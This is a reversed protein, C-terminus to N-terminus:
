LSEPRHAAWPRAQEFVRAARLVLDDERLRGVIQLGVPLGAKTFGCPVSAAPQGTLNFPFTFATWETWNEGDALKPAPQNHPFPLAALQPTLVLDYQTMFQRWAATYAVREALRKQYDRRNLDQGLSAARALSRDILGAKDTPLTSVLYDMGAYYIARFMPTPDFIPPNVELVTAGLGEFARAADGCLRAVEPDVTKVHGLTPSWAIRLGAVGRELGRLPAAQDWAAYNADRPDDGAMAALFMAADEVSRTMPGVHALTGSPSAPYAAVRGYTPKFGFVGCFSAPIRISGGADTGFALPGLGAALAAGAGGSSGGSTLDLDWPNRTVGTLPSDCTAKHGFECTTTKGLFVAGAARVHAVSPADETWPQHPDVTRSGRLTPWGKTLLLDKISLPVGDLPGLAAGTQFREESARAQALTVEQDLYCFANVRSELAEIRGVLYEAVEVPSLAHTRYAWALEGATMWEIDQNM